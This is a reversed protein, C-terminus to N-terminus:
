RPRWVVVPDRDPAPAVNRLRDVDPIIQVPRGFAPTGSLDFLTLKSSGKYEFVARERLSAALPDDSFRREFEPIEWDQLLAYVHVGRATMWDVSQSLWEPELIDYRLTQRGAYYRLTGSHQMAMVVSGAPTAKRVELAVGAYHRETLGLGLVGRDLSFRAQALGLTVGGILVAVGVAPRSTRWLLAVVAGIGVMVFPWCPLLFRLYSWDEFVLYMCYILWLSATYLAAIAAFGRTRPDPWLRRIPLILAALGVLAIPTHTEVLWSVYRTLNPWIHRATFMGDVDGYGSTLASGYLYDNIAAVALPGPAMCAGFLLLRTLHLAWARSSFAELMPWLALIAGLPVLNPRILIAVAAAVGAAAASWRGQGLLFYAAVCWAAAVPVDTMPQVLHLLVPPSTAVLWAAIVGAMRSGLRIGVGYTALILIGGAFPVVLFGAAHGGAAKAVAMLLPLGASYTPVIAWNGPEGAPRHGLPSFTWQADPWPADDVWPQELRLDGALWLDAQSVYGYADSGSATTSNFRIGILVVSVALLVAIRVPTFLAALPRLREISRRAVRLTAALGRRVPKWIRGSEWAGWQRDAWIAVAMLIVGAVLPRSPDNSRIRLGGLYTDFGGVVALAIAWTYVLWVVSWVIFRLRRWARARSTAGAQRARSDTSRPDM